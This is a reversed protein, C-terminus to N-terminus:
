AASEEQKRKDPRPTFLAELDSRRLLTARRDRDSRYTTLRGAKAFRWLTVRPIAFVESAQRMTLFETENKNEM